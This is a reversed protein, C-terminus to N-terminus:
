IPETGRAVTRGNLILNPSDIRVAPGRIHVAGRRAEILLRDNAWDAPIKATANSLIAVIAVAASNLHGGSISVLVEDGPTVPVLAGGFRGFSVGSYRATVPEGTPELRVDVLVGDRECAIADRAARRLAADGGDGTVFEGQDNIYGVTAASFWVRTDNGPGALARAVRQVDVSRAPGAARKRMSGRAM